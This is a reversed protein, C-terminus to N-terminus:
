DLNFLSFWALKHNEIYLSHSQHILKELLSKALFGLVAIAVANGGLTLLITQWADM